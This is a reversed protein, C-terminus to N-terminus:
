RAHDFRWRHPSLPTMFDDLPRVWVTEHGDTSEYVVCPTLDDEIFGVRVIVYEGGKYHRWRSGPAPLNRGYWQEPLRPPPADDTAM